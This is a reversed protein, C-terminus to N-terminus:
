AAAGQGAATAAGDVGDVGEVWEVAEECGGKGPRDINNACFFHSDDGGLGLEYFCTAAAM